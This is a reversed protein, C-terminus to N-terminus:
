MFDDMGGDEGDTDDGGEAIARAMEEEARARERAQEDTERQRPKHANPEFRLARVAENHIDLCFATRAHFAARPAADGGGGGAEGGGEGEGACSAMWGGDRDLTADLAGDAIAKAAVAAADDASALGLRTAVDSLPIRAYASALRALGARIVAHRMRGVLPATGDAAYAPGHRATVEGFAGLDGSRVARALDLYPGLAAAAGPGARADAALERLPPVEGLLLRVVTLWQAVAARFGVAGTPAKRSAALLADRADSYQLRAAALRGTYFLTRAAQAGSRPPDPRQAKARLADAAAVLGEGLYSRLLLNLLVEQGAEDHRLCAARHAALLAPRLTAGGAAGAGAREAALAWYFALRAAVVDLTRRNLARAKDVGASALSAAQHTLSYPPLSPPLSTLPHFPPCLAL